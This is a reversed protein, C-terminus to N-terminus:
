KKIDLMMKRLVIAVFTDCIHQWGIHRFVVGSAMEIKVSQWPEATWPVLELKLPYGKTENVQWGILPVSKGVAV